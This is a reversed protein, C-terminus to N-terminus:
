FRAVFEGRVIRPEGWTGLTGQGQTSSGFTIYAKDFLNNVEIALEYRSDATRVGLRANTLWYPAQEANPLVGPIASPTFLIDSLYAVNANGVLHLGNSLPQDLDATIDLQTKPSDIMQQGSLNIPVLVTADTIQFDKYKANLYGASVGLTLPQIVRWSLTEEAGWTRASGGNVIATLIFSHAANTHAQYQLNKYNNYFVATTLDLRHDLFPARFGVEYTDVTEGDFVAGLRPNAFDSPPNFPNVGGTKFGRAYRAYANGGGNLQYSVTASPLFKVETSDSNEGAPIIYSNANTEHVYRGSVTINLAPTIDYGGQAYVSWNHVVDVSKALPLALLLPPFESFISANSQHDDLFTAGGLYHFPGSGSSVARLEQYFFWKNSETLPDLVPIPLDNVDTFYVADNTRYATISTLDVGPLNLVATASEGYDRIKQKPAIPMAVTFKGQTGVALSSPLQANVGFGPLYGNQVLGLM